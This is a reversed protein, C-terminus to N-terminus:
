MAVPVSVTGPSVVLPPRWENNKKEWGLDELVEKLTGRAIVEDFFIRAAEAFHKQAQKFTTGSTSLDLAPAYAVFRRKEKLFVVSLNAVFGIKKMSADYRDNVLFALILNRNGSAM